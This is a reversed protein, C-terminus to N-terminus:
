NLSILISLLLTIGKGTLIGYNGSLKSTYVQKAKYGGNIKDKAFQTGKVPNKANTILQIKKFSNINDMNNYKSNTNTKNTNM